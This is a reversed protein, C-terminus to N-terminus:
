KENGALLRGYIETLRDAYRDITYGSAIGRGKRALTAAMEPDELLLSLKEAIDAAETTSVLAGEESIEATPVKDSILTPLGVFMAELHTNGFGETHSVLAFFDAGKLLSPIDTRYGPLFVREKLGHNEILSELGKREGGEGVIILNTDPFRN